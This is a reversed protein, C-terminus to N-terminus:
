QLHGKCPRQPLGEEGTTAAEEAREWRGPSPVWLLNLIFTGGDTLVKAELIALLRHFRISHLILAITHEIVLGQNNANTHWAMTRHIADASQVSLNGHQM